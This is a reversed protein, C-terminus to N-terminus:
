EWWYKLTVPNRSFSGLRPDRHPTPFMEFAVPPGVSFQKWGPSGKLAEWNVPGSLDLTWELPKRTVVPANKPRCTDRLCCVGHAPLPMNQPGADLTGEGFALMPGLALAMLTRQM